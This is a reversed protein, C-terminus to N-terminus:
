TGIEPHKVFTRPLNASHNAEYERFPFLRPNQSQRARDQPYSPTHARAAPGPASPAFSSFIAFSVVISLTPSANIPEPKM